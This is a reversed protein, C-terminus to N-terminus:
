PSPAFGRNLVRCYSFGGSAEARILALVQDQYNILTPVGMKKNLKLLNNIRDLKVGSRVKEMENVDLLSISPLHSLSQEISWLKKEAQDPNSILNEFPIAQEISFSGTQTRRLETVYAFCGLNKGLDHILSRIYTGRSCVVRLTFHPPNFSQLHIQDFFVKRPNLTVEINKRALRYLPVGKQKIASYVPPYQLQEGHFRKLQDLLLAPTISDFNGQASFEGEADYTTTAKGLCGAVLYDKKSEELYSIVKTAEGLAILLVGTALPDLTGTHGVKKEGLLKRIQYVATQSTIGKPKDLILFGDM